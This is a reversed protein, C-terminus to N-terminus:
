ARFARGLEAALQVNFYRRNAIGTLRDLSSLREARHRAARLEREVHLRREIEESALRVQERYDRLPAANEEKPRQGMERARRVRHARIGM